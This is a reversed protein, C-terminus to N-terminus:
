AEDMREPMVVAEQVAVVERVARTAVKGFGHM